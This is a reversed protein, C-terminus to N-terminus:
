VRDQQLVAVQDSMQEVVASLDPTNDDRKGSAVIYCERPIAKATTCEQSHSIAFGYGYHLQKAAV